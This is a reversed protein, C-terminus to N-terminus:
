ITSAATQLKTSLIDSHSHVGSIEHFWKAQMVGAGVVAFSYTCRELYENTFPNNVTYKCDTLSTIVPLATASSQQQLAWAFISVFIPFKGRGATFDQFKACMIVDPLNGVM